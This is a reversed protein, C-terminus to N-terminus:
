GSRAASPAPTFRTAALIADTAARLETPTAFLLSTSGTAFAERILRDRAREGLDAVAITRALELPSSAALLPELKPASRHERVHDLVMVVEGVTPPQAGDLRPFCREILEELDSTPVRRVTALVGLLSRWGAIQESNVPIVDIRAGRRVVLRAAPTAVLVDIPSALTDISNSARELADITPRDNPESSARRALAGAPPRLDVLDHVLELASHFGAVRRWQDELVVVYATADGGVAPGRLVRGICQRLRIESKTPRVLIATRARVLDVGEDLGDVGVLVDLEGRNFAAVVDAITKAAGDPRTATAYDVHFGRRSLQRAILAAHIVDHAFVVTPGYLERHEALHRVVVANRPAVEALRRLWAASLEGTRALRRLEAAGVGADATARTRVRVLTARALVGAEVLPQTDARAIEVGGFLASLVAREVPQSRTPTATAGVVRARARAVVDLIERYTRAPAHHAEDVIVWAPGRGLWRALSRLDAHVSAVSAVHM